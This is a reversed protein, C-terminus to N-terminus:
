AAKVKMAPVYYYFYYYIAIIIALAGVVSGGILADKQAETLGDSDDPSTKCMWTSYLGPYDSYPRCGSYYSRIGEESTIATTSKITCADDQYWAKTYSVLGNAENCGIPMYYNLDGPNPEEFPVPSRQFCQNDPFFDLVQQGEETCTEDNYLILAPGQLSSKPMDCTQVVDYVYQVGLVNISKYGCDLLPPSLGQSQGESCEDDTWSTTTSSDTAADCTVTKFTSDLVNTVNDYTNICAGYKFTVISRAMATTCTQGIITNNYFYNTQGMTFPWDDSASAVSFVFVLLIMSYIMKVFM